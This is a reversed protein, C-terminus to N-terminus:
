VICIGATQTDEYKTAGNKNEIGVTFTNDTEVFAQKSYLTVVAYTGASGTAGITQGSKPALNIYYTNLDGKTSAPVNFARVVSATANQVYTSLVIGDTVGTGTLTIDSYGVETSNDVEVVVVLSGSSQLPASQIEMKMSITSSSQTQNALNNVACVSTVANGIRNGDTNFLRIAPDDTAYIKTEITTIGCKGIKFKPELTSIYNSANIFLEIEDGIQFSTPVGAKLGGNVRIGNVTAVTGGALTDVTTISLSPAVQCDATELIVQKEREIATQKTGGFIFWAGFGVVAFLLIVILTLAVGGAKGKKNKM